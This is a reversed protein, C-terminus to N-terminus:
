RQKGGPATLWHEFGTATAADAGARDSEALHGDLAQAAAVVQRLEARLRTRIEADARDVMLGQVADSRMILDAILEAATDAETEDAVPEPTRKILYLETTNDNM